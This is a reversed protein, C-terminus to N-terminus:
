RRDIMVVDTPKDCSPFNILDRLYLSERENSAIDFGGYTLDTLHSPANLNFFFDVFFLLEVNQTRRPRLLRGYTDCFFYAVRPPPDRRGDELGGEEWLRWPVNARKRNNVRKGQVDGYYGVSSWEHVQLPTQVTYSIGYACNRLSKMIKKQCKFPNAEMMWFRRLWLCEKVFRKIM